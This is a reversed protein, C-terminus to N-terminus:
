QMAGDKERLFFVTRGLTSCSVGQHFAVNGTFKQLEPLLRDCEASDAIIAITNGGDTMERGVPRVHTTTLAKDFCIRYREREMEPVRILNCRALAAVVNSKSALLVVPQDVYDGVDVFTDPLSWGRKACLTLAVGDGHVVHVFGVGFVLAGLAALAIVHWRKMADM